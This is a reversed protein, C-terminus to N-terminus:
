PFILTINYNHERKSCVDFNSVQNLNILVCGEKIDLAQRKACRAECKCCGDFFFPTSCTFRLINLYTM